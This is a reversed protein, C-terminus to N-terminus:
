KAGRGKRNKNENSQQTTYYINNRIYVRVSNQKLGRSGLVFLFNGKFMHTDIPMSSCLFMVLQLINGSPVLLTVSTRDVMLASRGKACRSMILWSHSNSKPEVRVAHDLRESRIPVPLATAPGGPTPFGSSLMLRDRLLSSSEFFVATRRWTRRVPEMRPRWTTAVAPEALSSLSLVRGRSCVTNTIPSTEIWPPWM